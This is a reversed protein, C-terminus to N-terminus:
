SEAGQNCTICFDRGCYTGEWLSAQPFKSKLSCCSREVVKVGFGLIPSIRTFVERLRRGLEGRPTQEVFLGTKHELEKKQEEVVKRRKLNRGGINKGYIDEKRKKKYWSTKTLLKRRSRAIRSEKATRRLRQGDKMHRLKRNEYGRVGNVLIRRVQPVDLKQAYSDIIRWKERRGM